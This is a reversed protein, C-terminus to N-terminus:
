VEVHHVAVDVLGPVWVTPTSRAVTDPHTAQPQTVVRDPVPVECGCGVTLPLRADGGENPLVVLQHGLVSPVHAADHGDSVAHHRSQPDLLAFHIGIDHLQMGSRIEDGIDGVVDTPETAAAAVTQTMDKNRVCGRADCHDLSAAAGLRVELLGNVPQERTVVDIPVPVPAATVATVM